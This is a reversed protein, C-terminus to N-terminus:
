NCRWQREVYSIQQLRTHSGHSRYIDVYGYVPIEVWRCFEPKPPQQPPQENVIVTCASLFLGAAISAIIKKMQDGYSFM